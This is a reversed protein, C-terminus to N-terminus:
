QTKPNRHPNLVNQNIWEVEKDVAEKYTPFGNLIPGGSLTLDVQFEIKDLNHTPAEVHSARKIEATGGLSEMIDKSLGDTYIGTTVGGRILVRHKLKM